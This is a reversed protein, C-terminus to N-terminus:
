GAPGLGLRRLEDAVWAMCAPCLCDGYPGVTAPLPVPLRYNAESCWCSGAEGTNTCGFGAGCRECTLTRTADAQTWPRRPASTSSM